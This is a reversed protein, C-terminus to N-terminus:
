IHHTTRNTRQTIQAEAQLKILFSVPVFGAVKSFNDSRWPHKERKKFQVFPVLDRLADCVNLGCCGPANYKKSFSDKLARSVATNSLSVTYSWWIVRLRGHKSFKWKGSYKEKTKLSKKVWGRSNIFIVNCIKFIMHWVWLSACSKRNRFSKLLAMRLDFYRMTAIFNSTNVFYTDCVKSPRLNQFLFFIFLSFKRYSSESICFSMHPFQWFLFTLILTWENLENVFNEM